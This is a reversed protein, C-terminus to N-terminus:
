PSNDIVCVSMATSSTLELYQLPSGRPGCVTDFAEPALMGVASPFSEDIRHPVFVKDRSFCSVHLWLKWCSLADSSSYM